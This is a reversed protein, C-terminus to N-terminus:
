NLIDVQVLIVARELSLLINFIIMKAILYSTQYLDNHITTLLIIDSVNVM